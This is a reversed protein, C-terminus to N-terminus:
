AVLGDPQRDGCTELRSYAIVVPPQTAAVQVFGRDCRFDRHQFPEGPIETALAQSVHGRNPRFM